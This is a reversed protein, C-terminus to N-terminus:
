ALEGDNKEKKVEMQTIKQKVLEKMQHIEEQSWFIPRSNRAQDFADFEVDLRARLLYLAELPM